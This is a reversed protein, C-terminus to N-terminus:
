VFKTKDRRDSNYIRKEEREQRRKRGLREQRCMTEVRCMCYARDRRDSTESIQKNVTGKLLM